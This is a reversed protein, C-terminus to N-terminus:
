EWQTTHRRLWWCAPADGHPFLARACTEQAMGMYDYEQKNGKLPTTLFQQVAVTDYATGRAARVRFIAWDGGWLLVATVLLGQVGRELIRRVSGM